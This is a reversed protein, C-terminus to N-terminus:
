FLYRSVIRLRHIIWFHFSVCNIHLFIKFYIIVIYAFSINKPRKYQSRTQIVESFSLFLFEETKVVEEFNQLAYRHSRTRLENCSHTELVFYFAVNIYTGVQTTIYKKVLSNNNNIIIIPTNNQMFRTKNKLLIDLITPHLHLSCLRSNMWFQTIKSRNFLKVYYIAMIAATM